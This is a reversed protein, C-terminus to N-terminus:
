SIVVAYLYANNKLVEMIHGSLRHKTNFRIRYEREIYEDFDLGSEVYLLNYEMDYLRITYVNM